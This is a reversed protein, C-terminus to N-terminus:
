RATLQRQAPELPPAARAKAEPWDFHKLVAREDTLRGLVADLAALCARVPALDGGDSRAERARAALAPIAAGHAEVDRRM